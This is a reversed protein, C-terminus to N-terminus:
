PIIDPRKDTMVFKLTGGNMIDKHNIIGDTLPVGNLSVSKVYLNKESLGKAEVTFTKDGPLKLVVKSLQPAGLVYAGGCPDVPYFGLVSYIYWASMQGCDDNGCLGDVGDRYQTRCIERILEQTRGPDGAMAYFYAVHHSPENGHAYQGMLGTVDLVAGDEPVESEITFLSDLKNRFAERGGMLEVLAQPDHQVHFAYQWANAETYDGGHSGAHSLAFKDFPTRWGGLSDRGRMMCTEPDFVNRFYQARRSFFEYDETKGLAKALQAACYDDYCSELTRSVNENRMIDYPYYGFKDYVRWDSKTHNITLSGKIANYAREPDFGRFGKLYADVIVPVSHNGIMCYTEGGWLAWIPLCGVRDYQDIMSNVVDDVIEPALITYLPHAARYTDWLSLTSYLPKEGADAVNNPHIFLHYMSTYFIRKQEDSGKIEARSLLDNWRKNADVRVSDFNWGPMEAAMNGKAGDVSTSSMAVKVLLEEGKALDFDLVYRSAKERPDRLPLEARATYPKSFEITYYYTRDLWVDKRAFGSITTPSDFSQVADLTQTHFHNESGVMGSQFDIMIHAPDEGSFKYRHIAVRPTTTMEANVDFRDLFVRYYGPSAEQRDKDYISGYSDLVPRGTFPMMLLDGLDPCGTGSIRNQSFGFIVTDKYQYGGTYAWSCNGSEPGVQIMGFPLCAGPFCHGNDACGVFPDVYRTYRTDCNCSALVACVIALLLVKKM